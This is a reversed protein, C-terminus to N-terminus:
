RGKKMEMKNLVSEIKGEHTAIKDRRDDIKISTVVRMVGEKFVTEHMSRITAVIEDLDGEIITGMSTLQYKLGSEQLVLLSDAVYESLSTHTLGIPAISVEVIAM